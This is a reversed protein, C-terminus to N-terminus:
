KKPLNYVTEFVCFVSFGYYESFADAIRNCIRTTFLDVYQSQCMIHLEGNESRVGICSLLATKALGRLKLDDIMQPWRVFLNPAVM